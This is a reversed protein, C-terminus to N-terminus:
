SDGGAGLPQLSVIIREGDGQGTASVKQLRFLGAVPIGSSAFACSVVAGPVLQSVLVPATPSLSVDGLIVAPISVLEVRSQAAAAASVSDRIADVNATEVALGYVTISDDDQAQGYIPNDQEGGGAGSMIARNAFASLGDRDVQPSERIHSDQLFAIPDAPVVLGGVLAERGVMTWDVGAKTLERLQPGALLFNGARYIRTALVDTPTAEVVLGFSDEFQADLALENFITALDIQDYERTIPLNRRDWWASLDRADMSGTTFKSSTKVVPGMWVLGGPNRSLALEHEWPWTDRIASTCSPSLGIGVLNCSAESTDSLVRSWQVDTVELNDYLLTGGGRTWIQATYTGCGLENLTQRRPTPLNVTFPEVVPDPEALLSISAAGWQRNPSVTWAPRAQSVAAPFVQYASFGQATAAIASTEYAWGSAPSSAAADESGGSITACTIAGFVIGAGSLDVPAGLLTLQGVSGGGNNYRDLGTASLKVGSLEYVWYICNRASGETITLTTAGGVTVGLAYAFQVGTAVGVLGDTPPDANSPFGAAFHWTATGGNNMVIGTILAASTSASSQCGVVVLANGATIPASMTVVVNTTGSNFGEQVLAIAM